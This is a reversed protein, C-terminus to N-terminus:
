FQPKVYFNGASASRTNYSHIQRSRTFVDCLNEPTIDNSVDHM